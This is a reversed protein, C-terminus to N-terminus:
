KLQTKEWFNKIEVLINSSVLEKPSEDFYYTPFFGGYTPTAYRRGIFIIIGKDDVTRILRGAAQFSRTLGPFQYAYAFGNSYREEYYQRILEREFSVSPLSPSIIFVGNLMGPFDLGEAFIGATVAIALVLSNNELEEVFNKREDDHMPGLQKLITLGPVPKIYKLVESAYKFSPFFAFYKGPKLQITKTILHGIDKYSEHRQKYRTDVDPYIRIIRNESPFPSSYRQYTTKEVPFGLLDRYFFFPTLTASIATVSM